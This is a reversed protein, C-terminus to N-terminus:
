WRRFSRKEMSKSLKRLAELSWLSNDMASFEFGFTKGGVQLRNVELEMPKEADDTALEYFCLDSITSTVLDLSPSNRSLIFAVSEAVVCKV